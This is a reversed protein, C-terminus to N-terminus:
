AREEDDQGAEREMAPQGYRTFFADAYRRAIPTADQDNRIRTWHQLPTPKPKSLMERVKAMCAAGHPTSAHQYERAFVKKEAEAVRERRVSSEENLAKWVESPAPFKTHMKAWSNLLGLVRNTDFEKLTDFWLEMAKASVSKKDFVEALANLAAAFQPGSLTDM